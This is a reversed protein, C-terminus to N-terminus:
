KLRMIGQKRRLKNIFYSANVLYIQLDSRKKEIIEAQKAEISPDENRVFDIYEQYM